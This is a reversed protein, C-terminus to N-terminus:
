QKNLISFEDNELENLKTTLTKNQAELEQIRMADADRLRRLEKIIGKKEELYLELDGCTYRFSNVSTNSVVLEARLANIQHRMDALLIDTTANQREMSAHASNKTTTLRHYLFDCSSVKDNLRAIEHCHDMIALEYEQLLIGKADSDAHVQMSETNIIHRRRDRDVSCRITQLQATHILMELERGSNYNGYEDFHAFVMTQYTGSFFELLMHSMAYQYPKIVGQYNPNSLAKTISDFEAYSESYDQIEINEAKPPLLDVWALTSEFQHADYIRIFLLSPLKRRPASSISQFMTDVTDIPKLLGSRPTLIAVANAISEGTSFDYCCSDCFGVYGYEMKLEPQGLRMREYNELGIKANLSDLFYYTLNIRIEDFAGTRTRPNIFVGASDYGQIASNILHDVEGAYLIQDPVIYECNYYEYESKLEFPEHHKSSNRVILTPFSTSDKKVLLQQTDSAFIPQRQQISAFVKLPTLLM